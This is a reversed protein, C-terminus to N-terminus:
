EGLVTLQKKGGGAASLYGYPNTAHMVALSPNSLPPGAAERNLKTIDVTKFQPKDRHATLYSALCAVREYNNAPKKQAMFLKPTLEGTAGGTAFNGAGGIASGSPSTATAVGTMVLNIVCNAVDESVSRAFSHGPGTLKLSYSASDSKPAM